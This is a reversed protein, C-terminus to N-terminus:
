REIFSKSPMVKWYNKGALSNKKKTKVHAERCALISDMEIIKNTTTKSSNEKVKERKKL